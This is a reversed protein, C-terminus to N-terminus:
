GNSCVKDIILQFFQFLNGPKTDCPLVLCKYDLNALIFDINNQGGDETKTDSCAKDRLAGLVDKILFTEEKSYPDKEKNIELCSKEFKSLDISKKISDIQEYIDATTEEITLCTEEFLKSSEPVELEYKVCPAPVKTGCTNKIKKECSM